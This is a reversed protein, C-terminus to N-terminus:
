PRGLFLVVGTQGRPAHTLGLYLPGIGTDAGVFLSMGTRLQGLRAQARTAWANGAELTAGVFFARAAVPVYPLRQYWTLRSFLVYNGLLQGDRYGSLQHFGGLEYRGIEGIDQQQSAGRLAGYWTFTHDGLTGVVLASTEVQQFRGAANGEGLAAQGLLRYGRTPFNAFDLQDVVLALRLALENAQLPRAVDAISAAV